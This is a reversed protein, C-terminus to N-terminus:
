ETCFYKPNNQRQFDVKHSILIAIEAKKENPSGHYMKEM